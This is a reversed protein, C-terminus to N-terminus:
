RRWRSSPSTRLAAADLPPCAPRAATRASPRHGWSGAASVWRYGVPDALQHKTALHPSSYVLAQNSPPTFAAVREHEDERRPRTCGPRPFVKLSIPSWAASRGWCTSRSRVASATLTCRSVAAQMARSRLRMSSWRGSHSGSRLHSQRDRASLRPPLLRGASRVASGTGTWGLEGLMVPLGPVHENGSACPVKPHGTMSTFVKVLSQM